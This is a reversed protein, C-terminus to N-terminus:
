RRNFSLDPARQIELIRNKYNNKNNSYIYNTSTESMIDEDSNNNLDPKAFDEDYEWELHVEEEVAQYIEESIVAEDSNNSWFGYEAFNSDTEPTTPMMEEQFDYSALGYEEIIGILKYAYRSDTAYGCKKLGHAWNAYDTKDYDFLERYRNRYLLFDTHDRYSQFADDYARFCSEILVGNQYDDDKKQRTDGTWGENCKIGFHNNGSLALDGKGWRSELIGQALIISAPIGSRNMEEVAIKEYTQIYNQRDFHTIDAAFLSYTLGLLAACLLLGHKM